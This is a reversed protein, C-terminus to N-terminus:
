PVGWRRQRNEENIRKASLPADIMSGIKSILWIAGGSVAVYDNSDAAGLIAIAVGIVSSGWFIVGKTTEGNYFQGVGSGFISSFLFAEVPNKYPILEASKLEGYLKFQFELLESTSLESLDRQQLERNLLEIQNRFHLTGSDWFLHQNSFRTSTQALPNEQSKIQIQIQPPETVQSEPSFSLRDSIKIM